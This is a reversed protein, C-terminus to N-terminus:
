WGGRYFSLVLPGNAVLDSSSILEGKANPLSFSPVTDGTKLSTDMIGSKKLRETDASMINLTEQPISKGSQEKLDDLDKKLSM